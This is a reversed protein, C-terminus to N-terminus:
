ASVHGLFGSKIPALCPMGLVKDEWINGSFEQSIQPNSKAIPNLPLSETGLNSDNKPVECIVNNPTPLIVKSDMENKPPRPTQFLNPLDCTLIALTRCSLVM